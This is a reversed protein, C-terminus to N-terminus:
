GPPGVFCMIDVANKVAHHFPPSSWEFMVFLAQLIAGTRSPWDADGCLLGSVLDLPHDQCILSYCLMVDGCLQTEELLKDM